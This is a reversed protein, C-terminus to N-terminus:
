RQAKLEKALMISADSNGNSAWNSNCAVDATLAFTPQPKIVSACYSLMVKSWAISNDSAGLILLGTAYRPNTPGPGCFSQCHISVSFAGLKWFSLLRGIRARDILGDPEM